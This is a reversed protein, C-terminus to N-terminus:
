SVEGAKRVLETRNFLQQGIGAIEACVIHLFAFGIIDDRINGTCPLPVIRWEHVPEGLRLRQDARRIRYCLHIVTQFRNCAFGYIGPPFARDFWSEADDLRNHPKSLEKQPAEILNCSFPTQDAHRVVNLPQM